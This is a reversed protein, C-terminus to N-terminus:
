GAAVAPDVFAGPVIGARALEGGAAEVAAWTGAPAVVVQDPPWVTEADLVEGNVSLFAIDFPAAVNMSHFVAGPAVVPFVFLTAREIPRRNQLGREQEEPTRFVVIRM